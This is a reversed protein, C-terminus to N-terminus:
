KRGEKDAPPPVFAYCMKWSFLWAWFSRFRCAECRGEGDLGHGFRELATAGHVTYCRKHGCNACRESPATV